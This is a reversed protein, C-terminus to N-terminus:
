SLISHRFASSDSNQDLVTKFMVEIIYILVGLFGPVLVWSSYFALWKYYLGVKEGFYDKIEDFPLNSPNGIITLLQSQISDLEVYDHL